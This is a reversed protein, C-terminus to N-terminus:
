CYIAIVWTSSKEFNEYFLDCEKNVDEKKYTLLMILDNKFVKSM